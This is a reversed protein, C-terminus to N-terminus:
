NYKLLSKFQYNNVRYIWKSWDDDFEINQIITLGSLLTECEVVFAIDRIDGIDLIYPEESHM